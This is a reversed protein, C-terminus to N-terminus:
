IKKIEKAKIVQEVDLDTRSILDGEVEIPSTLPIDKDICYRRVFLIDAERIEQVEDFSRIERKLEPVASPHNVFIKVAEVEKRLIKKKVIETKTVVYRISDHVYSIRNIKEQLQSIIEKSKPITYFYPEFNRDLCCITKNDLTRGFLRIVAKGFITTTYDIDIPYFQIDAM